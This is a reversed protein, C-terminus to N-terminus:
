EYEWDQRHNRAPHLGHQYALRLLTTGVQVPVTGCVVVNQVYNLRLRKCREIHPERRCRSQPREPGMVGHSELELM